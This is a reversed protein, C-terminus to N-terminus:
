HGSWGMDLLHQESWLHVFTILKGNNGRNLRFGQYVQHSKIMKYEKKDFKLMLM